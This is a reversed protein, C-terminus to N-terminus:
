SFRNEPEHDVSGVTFNDPNQHFVLKVLHFAAMVHQIETTLWHAVSPGPKPISPVTIPRIPISEFRASL